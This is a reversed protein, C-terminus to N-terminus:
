IQSECLGVPRCPADDNDANDYDYDKDKHEITDDVKLEARIWIVLCIMHRMLMLIILDMKIKSLWTNWWLIWAARLLITAFFVWCSRSQAWTFNHKEEEIKIQKADEVNKVTVVLKTLWINGMKKFQRYRLIQLGSKEAAAGPQGRQLHTGSCSQAVNQPPCCMVLFIKQHAVRM